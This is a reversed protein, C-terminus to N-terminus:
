FESRDAIKTFGNYSEIFDFAEYVNYFTNGYLNRGEDDFEMIDISNENFGVHVIDDNIWVNNELMLDNFKKEM